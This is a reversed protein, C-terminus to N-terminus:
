IRTQRKRSVGPGYLRVSRENSASGVSAGVEPAASQIAIGSTEVRAEAVAAAGTSLLRAQTEPKKQSLDCGSLGLAGLALAAVVPIAATMPASASM